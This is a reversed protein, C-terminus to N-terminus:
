GCHATDIPYPICLLDEPCVERTEWLCGWESMSCTVITHWGDCHSSGEFYCTDTCLPSCTAEHDTVRVECVEGTAECDVTTRWSLHGDETEDCVQVVTDFCRTWGELYCPAVEEEELELCSSLTCLSVVLMIMKRM